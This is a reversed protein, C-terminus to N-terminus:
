GKRNTCRTYYRNHRKKYQGGSDILLLGDKKLYAFSEKTAKYHPYAANENFGAITAFSDSIYYKSQARFESAKVDIDLESILEKNKIAEELWAFFNVYLWEM